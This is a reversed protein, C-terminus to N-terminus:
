QVVAKVMTALLDAWLKYEKGSPHLGDTALLSPDNAAQRTLATIYLYNCNYQQTIRKNIDNFWNIEKSIRATDGSQAFPTVSYDPISLVFVHDKKNAALQISTQLLQEFRSRYGSTDMRQYQDNVGILLSVIDYTQHINAQQIANQLDVTTWGTTAIYQPTQFRITTSNLLTTTQTPFRLSADVSQGITYSDGLALFTKGTTTDQTAPPASIAGPGSKKTCNYSLFLCAPVCVLLAVFRRM